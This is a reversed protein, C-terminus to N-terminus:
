HGTGCEEERSAIHEEDDPAASRGAGARIWAVARRGGCNAPGRLMRPREPQRRGCAADSVKEAGELGTDFAEGIMAIATIFWAPFLYDGVGVQGGIFKGLVSADLPLFSVAVLTAFLATGLVVVAHAQESLSLPATM